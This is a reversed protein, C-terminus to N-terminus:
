AGQPSELASNLAGEDTDLVGAGEDSGMAAWGDARHLAGIQEAHSRKRNQIDTYVDLTFRSRAHGM